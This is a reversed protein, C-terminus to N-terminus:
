EEDDKITPQTGHRYPTPRRLGKSLPSPRKPSGKLTPLTPLAPEKFDVPTPASPRHRDSRNIFDPYRGQQKDEEKLADMRRLTLKGDMQQSLQDVEDVEMSSKVVPEEKPFDIDADPLDHGIEDDVPLSSVFTSHPEQFLLPNQPRPEGAAVAQDAEHRPRGAKTHLFPRSPMRQADFQHSHFSHPPVRSSVPRPKGPIAEEHLMPPPLFASHSALSSRVPQLARLPSRPSTSLNAHEGKGRKVTERDDDSEPESESASEAPTRYNTPKKHKGAMVNHATFALVMSLFLITKM